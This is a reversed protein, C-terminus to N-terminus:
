LTQFSLRGQAPKANDQHLLSLLTHGQDPKGAWSSVPSRSMARTPPVQASPEKLICKSM